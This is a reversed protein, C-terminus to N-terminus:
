VFGKGTLRHTGCPSPTFLFIKDATYMHLWFRPQFAFGRKGSYPSPPLPHPHQHLHCFPSIELLDVTPVHPSQNGGETKDVRPADACVATQPVFNLLCRTKTNLYLFGIYM